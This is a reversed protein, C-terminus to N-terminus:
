SQPPPPLRTARATETTVLDPLPATPAGLLTGNLRSGSDGAFLLFRPERARPLCARCDGGRDPGRDAVVTAFRGRHASRHPRAPRAQRCRGRCCWLELSGLPRCPKRAGTPSGFPWSFLCAAWQPTRAQRARSGPVSVKPYGLFLVIDDASECLGSCFVDPAPRDASRVYGPTLLYIVAASARLGCAGILRGSVAGRCRWLM